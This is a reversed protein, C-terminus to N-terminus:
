TIDPHVLDLAGFNVNTLLAMVYYLDQEPGFTCQALEKALTKCLSLLALHYHM